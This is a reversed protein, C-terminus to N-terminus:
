KFTFSSTRFVGEGQQKAPNKQGLFHFERLNNVRYQSLSLPDWKEKSQKEDFIRDVAERYMIYNFNQFTIKIVSCAPDIEFFHEMTKDKTKRVLIKEVFFLNVPEFFIVAQDKKFSEIKYNPEIKSFARLFFYLKITFTILEADIDKNWSTLNLTYSFSKSLNKTTLQCLKLSLQQNMFQMLSFLTQREAQKNKINISRPENLVYDFTDESTKQFTGLTFYVRLDPANFIALFEKINM